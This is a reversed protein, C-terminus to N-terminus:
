ASDHKMGSILHHAAADADIKERVREPTYEDPTVRVASHHGRAPGSTVKYPVIMVQQIGTGDPNLTTEERGAGTVEWAPRPSDNV